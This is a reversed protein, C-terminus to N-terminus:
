RKANPSRGEPDEDPDFYLAAGVSGGLTLAALLGAAISWPSLAGQDLVFSALGTIGIGPPVSFVLVWAIKERRSMDVM